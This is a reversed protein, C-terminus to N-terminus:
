GSKKYPRRAPDFLPRKPNPVYCFCRAAFPDCRTTLVLRIAAFPFLVIGFFRATVGLQGNLAIKSIFLLAGVHGLRHAIWLARVANWAERANGAVMGLMRGVDNRAPLFSADVASRKMWRLADPGKRQEWYAWSLVYQAYPDGARSPATCWSIAAEPNQKGSLAGMLELLGLLAAASGSGLAARRKLAAELKTADGDVLLAVIEPDGEPVFVPYNLTNWVSRAQVCRRVRAPSPM